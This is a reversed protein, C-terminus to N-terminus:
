SPWSPWEPPALRPRDTLQELANYLEPEIHELISQASTIYGQDYRGAYDNVAEQLFDHAMKASIDAPRNWESSSKAEVYLAAMRKNHRDDPTRKAKKEDIQKLAADADKWEQSQPANTQRATLIKGLATERNATLTMSLMGARQKAVHDECADRINELTVPSGGRQRRWLDLLIQSRGLEELAFATLVVATAYSGSEYLRVADRLLLGCQELALAYGKLLYEATVSMPENGM